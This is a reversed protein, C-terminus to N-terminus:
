TIKANMSALMILICGFDIWDPIVLGFFMIIRAFDEGCYLNFIGGFNVLCYCSM